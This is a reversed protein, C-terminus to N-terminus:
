NRVAYLCLSIIDPYSDLGKALPELSKQTEPFRRAIASLLISKYEPEIALEHLRGTDPPKGGELVGALVHMAGGTKKLAQQFASWQENGPEKGKLAALYLLARQVAALDSSADIVHSAEDYRGQLFFAYFSPPKLDLPLPQELVALAKV